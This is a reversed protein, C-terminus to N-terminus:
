STRPFLYMLGPVLGQEWTAWNHGSPRESYNHIYGKDVLMAAFRRNPALLWEIQGTEVYFRLSQHPSRSMQETLWESDHYSDKGGPMATFCGSQSAVKSFLHPHKWALWTSVLGGLSAGWLGRESTTGYRQEIVPMLERLLFAEYHEDFRYEQTRDEAEIMVLRVPQIRQHEILAEAVEHFRLKHYFVEGDQVYITAIPASRPEYVFYRRQSGFTLSTIDHSTTCEQATSSRPPEQFSNLSLTLARHYSYWPNKPKQPNALDPLPHKEADLFAYEVYSGQPFELTLPITLPIPREDWDTFDGMLYAAKEPPQFTVFSHHIEIM